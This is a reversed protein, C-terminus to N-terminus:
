DEGDRLAALVSTTPAVADAPRITITHEEYPMGYRTTPLDRHEPNRAVIEARGALEDVFIQGNRCAYLARLGHGQDASADLYFRKGSPTTMRICGARDQFQPGRPNPVVVDDFWASVTAAPEDTLYRFMEFYHTGNMAMGFNGAVVTASSLGGYAESAAIRKVEVYQEMFRM